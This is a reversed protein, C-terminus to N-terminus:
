MMKTKDKKRCMMEPNIWKKSEDNKSHDMKEDDNKPQDM